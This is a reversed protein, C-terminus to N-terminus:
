RALSSRAPFLIAAQGFLYTGQRSEGIDLMIILPKYRATILKLRSASACWQLSARAISSAPSNLACGKLDDSLTGSPCFTGLTIAQFCTRSALVRNVIWPERNLTFSAGPERNVIWIHFCIWYLPSLQFLNSFGPLFQFLRFCAPAAQFVRSRASFAPFLRSCGPVLQLLSSRGPVFHFPRSCAPVLRFLSSCLPVAQFLSSCTPVAWFLRSCAPVVELLTSCAPVLLFLRSCAPVLQFLTPCSTGKQELRNWAIARQEM